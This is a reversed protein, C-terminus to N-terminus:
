TADLGMLNLSRGNAGRSHTTGCDGDGGARDLENLKAEQAIIEKCASTICTHILKM